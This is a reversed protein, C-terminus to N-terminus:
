PHDKEIVAFAVAYDGDDSLSLHFRAHVSDLRKQAGGSVAVTPAGLSDPTIEWDHWSLGERMGTGLAKLLAEKAAYLRAYARVPDPRSDAREREKKTFCRDLFKDGYSAITERMRPVSVIDTGVGKIM